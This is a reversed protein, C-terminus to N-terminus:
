CTQDVLHNELIHLDNSNCRVFLDVFLKRDPFDMWNFKNIINGKSSIVWIEVLPFKQAAASWKCFNTISNRTITYESKVEIIKNKLIIDPLYRRHKNTTLDFYPICKRDKLIFDSYQYGENELINFAFPEYGFIKIQEGTKFTYNKAKIRKSMNYEINEPLQMWNYVGYKEYSTRQYNKIMQKMAGPKLQKERKKKKVFDLSSPNSVGYKKLMTKRSKELINQQSGHIIMRKQHIKRQGEKSCFINNTINDSFKYRCEKSCTKAFRKNEKLWKPIKGCPCNPVNNELYFIRSSLCYNVGLNNTEAMIREYIDIYNNKIYNINKIAGNSKIIDQYYKQQNKIM